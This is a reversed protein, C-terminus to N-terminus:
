KNRKKPPPHKESGKDKDGHGDNDDSKQERKKLEHLLFIKKVESDYASSDYEFSGSSSVYGTSLWNELQKHEEGASSAGASSAGGTSTKFKTITKRKNNESPEAIKKSSTAAKNKPKNRPRGKRKKKLKPVDQSCVSVGSITSTDSESTEQQM